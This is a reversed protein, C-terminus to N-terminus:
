WIEPINISKERAEAATKAVEIFVKYTGERRYKRMEAPNSKMGM